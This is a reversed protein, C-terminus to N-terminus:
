EQLDALIRELEGEVMQLRESEGTPLGDEEPIEEVRYGDRLSIEDGMVDCVIRECGVEKMSLYEQVMPDLLEFFAHRDLVIGYKKRFSRNALYVVGKTSGETILVSEARYKEPDGDVEGVSVTGYLHHDDSIRSRDIEIKARVNEVTNELSEPIKRVEAYETM